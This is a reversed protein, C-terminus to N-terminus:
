RLHSEVKTLIIKKEVEKYQLLIAESTSIVKKWSKALDLFSIIIDFLKKVRIKSYPLRWILLQYYLSLYCQQSTLVYIQLFYTVDFVSENCFSSLFVDFNSIFM